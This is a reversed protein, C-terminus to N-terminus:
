ATLPIEFILANMLGIHMSFFHNLLQVIRGYQFDRDVVNLNFVKVGVENAFFADPYVVFGYGSCDSNLISPWCQRFARRYKEGLRLNRFENTVM